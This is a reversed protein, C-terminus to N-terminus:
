YALTDKIEKEHAPLLGYRRFVRLASNAIQNESVGFHAAAEELTHAPQGDLGILYVARVADRYRRRIQDLKRQVEEARMATLADKGQDTM